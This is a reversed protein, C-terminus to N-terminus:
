PVGPYLLFSGPILSSLPPWGDREIRARNGHAVQEDAGSELEQPVLGCPAPVELELLHSSGLSQFFLSLIKWHNIFGVFTDRIYAGVPRTGTSRYTEAMPVVENVMPVLGIPDESLFTPKM